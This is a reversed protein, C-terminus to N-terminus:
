SQNRHFQPGQAIAGILPCPLASRQSGRAPRTSVIFHRRDAEFM